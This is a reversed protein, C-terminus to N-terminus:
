SVRLQFMGEMFNSFAIGSMLLVSNRYFLSKKKDVKKERLQGLTEGLSQWALQLVNRKTTTTSTKEGNNDEFSAKWGRWAVTAGYVRVATMSLATLIGPVAKAWFGAEGPFGGPIGFACFLFLGGYICRPYSASSVSSSLQDMRGFLFSAMAFGCAGGWKTALRKTLTVDPILFLWLAMTGFLISPLTSTTTPSSPPVEAASLASSDNTASLSTPMQTTRSNIQQRRSVYYHSSSARTSTRTSTTTLPSLHQGHLEMFPRKLSSAPCIPSTSFATVGWSPLVLLVLFHLRAFSSM